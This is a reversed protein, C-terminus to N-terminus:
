TTTPDPAATICMDELASIFGSTMAELETYKDLFQHALAPFNCVDTEALYYEHLERLIPFSGQLSAMKEEGQNLADAATQIRHVNPNQKGFQDIIQRCLGIGVRYLERYDSCSALLDSIAGMLQQDPPQTCSELPLSSPLGLWSSLVAQSVTARLHHHRSLWSPFSGASEGVLRYQLTGDSRFASTYLSAGRDQVAPSSELGLCLRVAHEVTEPQIGSVCVPNCCRNSGLCPACPHNSQVAVHGPGYAGTVGFYATSMFLGVVRTGVAAAIHLPGTDNGVLVDMEKYCSSLDTVSTQGILDVTPYAASTQFRDGLSADGESGFLVIQAGMHDVLREGLRVFAEVPWRKSSRSAGLQFGISLKGVGFGCDSMKRTCERDRESNIPLYKETPRSKVGAMGMYIDVLNLLNDRQNRSMGFLYKGWKGAIVIENDPSHVRGTKSEANIKGSLYSSGWDHTLNILLDYAQHLEPKTQWVAELAASGDSSSEGAAPTIQKWPFTVLSDIWPSDALIPSFEEICLCTIRCRPEHEKLCKV